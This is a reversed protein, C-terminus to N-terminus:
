GESIRGTDAPHYIVITSMQARRLQVKSIYINKFLVNISELFYLIFYGSSIERGKDQAHSSLVALLNPLEGSM